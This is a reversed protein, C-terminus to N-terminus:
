TLATIRHLELYFTELIIVMGFVAMVNLLNNDSTPSGFTHRSHKIWVCWIPFIILMRQMKGHKCHAMEDFVKWDLLQHQWTICTGDKVRTVDKNGSNAFMLCSSFPIRSLKAISNYAESLNQMELDNLCAYKSSVYFLIDIKPKTEYLLLYVICYFSPLFIILFSLDLEVKGNGDYWSFFM